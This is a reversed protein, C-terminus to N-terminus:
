DIVQKIEEMFYDYEREFGMEYIGPSFTIPKHEEHTITASGYSISLYTKGDKEFVELSTEERDKTIVHSHGTHEGLALVFSNEGQKKKLRKPLKELRRFNLDGHRAITSTKM